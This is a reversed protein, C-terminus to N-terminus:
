AWQRMKFFKGLALEEEAHEGDVFHLSGLPLLM